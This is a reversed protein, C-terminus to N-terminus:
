EVSSVFNFDFIIKKDYRACSACASPTATLLPPLTNV